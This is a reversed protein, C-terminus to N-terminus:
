AVCLSNDCLSKILPLELYHSIVQPEEVPPHRVALSLFYSSNRTQIKQTELYLDDPHRGGTETQVMQVPDLAVEFSTFDLSSDLGLMKAYSEKVTQLRTFDMMQIGPPRSNLWAQENHSLVTDIPNISITGILPKVDVGVPFASSVAVVALERCYSLDFNLCPLGTTADIELKGYMNEMFQWRYREVTGGVTTSLVLRLLVHSVLYCRRDSELRLRYYNQKEFNSLIDFYSALLTEVTVETPVVWLDIRNEAQQYNLNSSM